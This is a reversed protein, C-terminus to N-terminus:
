IWEAEPREEVEVYDEDHHIDIGIETNSQSLQMLYITFTDLLRLSRLEFNDDFDVMLKGGLFGDKWKYLKVMRNVSDDEECEMILTFEEKGSWSRNSNNEEVELHVSLDKYTPEDDYDIELKSTDVNEAAFKKWQEFIDSVTVRKPAEFDVLSKFNEVIKKHPLAGQKLMDVLVHDLKVIYESYDYQEVYPIMVEKIKKEIVKTVDGYSNFASSLASNIGKELQEEIMKDMFGNSLKDEVIKLIEKDLSM